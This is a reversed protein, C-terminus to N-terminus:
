YILLSIVMEAVFFFIIFVFYIVGTMWFKFITKPWKQMYVRKFSILAYLTVVIFSLAFPLVRYDENEIIMFILILSLGYFFYAFTHLHLAHIIHKIYLQGKQRIYLIKLILAFLPILILMMLPLNKLIFGAVVEQDSRVVRISQRAILEEWFTLEQLKLSDFLQNNSVDKNYKYKDILDFDMRDLIFEDNGSEIKILSKGSSKKKGKSTADEKQNKITDASGTNKKYNETNRLRELSDPTLGLKALELSDSSSIEKKTNTEIVAKDEDMIINQGVQSVIFFYFISIILYLRVPHAYSVRKGEIYKNTLWGPKILFPKISKAFRSDIALYTNFFDGLLTRFSVNSDNNEQGCKPCYNYISDLSAGCNLCNNTKRRIKM